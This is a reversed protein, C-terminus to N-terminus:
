RSAPQGPPTRSSSVAVAAAPRDTEASGDNAPKEPTASGETNADETAAGETDAGEAGEASDASATPDVCDRSLPPLETRQPQAAAPAGPEGTVDSYPANSLPFVNWAEADSAVPNFSHAYNRDEGEVWSDPPTPEDEGMTTLPNGDQDYLRVAELLNGACDYAYINTVQGGNHALGQYSMDEVIYDVSPTSINAWTAALFPVTLIVAAVNAIDRVRVLWQHPLWRGRGWQVSVVILALTFVLSWFSIPFGNVLPHQLLLLAVWAGVVARLVWWVPRLSVMLDRFGQRGPTADFWTAGRQKLREVREATTLKAPKATARVPLGAAQRLEEAYHAADGLSDLSDGESLRETIDAGLGDLLEDLEDAPLDSLHSRVEATFAEARQANTQSVSVNM